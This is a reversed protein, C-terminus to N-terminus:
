CEPNGVQINETFSQINEASGQWRQRGCDRKPQQTYPLSLREQCLLSSYVWFLSTLSMFGNHSGGEKNHSLVSRLSWNPFAVPAFYNCKIYKNLCHQPKFEIAECKSPLCDVVQAVRGTRKQTPYKQIKSISDQNKGPSAEFQLRELRQRWYSPNCTHPLTIVYVQFFCLYSPITCLQM